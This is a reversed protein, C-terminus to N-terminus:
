STLLFMIANMSTTSRGKCFAYQSPHVWHTQWQLLIQCRLSAYVRYPVPLITIPRLSLPSRSPGKPIFTTYSHYFSSPFYGQQESLHFIDLRATLLCDPLSKFEHARWGDLGTATVSLNRGLFMTCIVLHLHPFLCFINSPWSNLCDGMGIMRWLGRRLEKREVHTRARRCSNRYKSFQWDRWNDTLPLVGETWIFIRVAEQCPRQCRSTEDVCTEATPGDSFNLTWPEAQWTKEPNSKGVVSSCCTRRRELTCHMLYHKRSKRM